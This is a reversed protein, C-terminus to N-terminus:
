FILRRGAAPPPPPPPNNNNDDKKKKPAKPVKRQKNREKAEKEQRKEDRLAIQRRVNDLLDIMSQMTILRPNEILRRYADPYMRQFVLMVENSSPNNNDGRGHPERIQRIDEYLQELIRDYTGLEEDEDTMENMIAIIREQAADVQAQEDPTLVSERHIFQSPASASRKLQGTPSLPPNSYSSSSPSVSEFSKARCSPCDDSTLQTYCDKCIPNKCAKCYQSNQLGEDTFDSMCISCSPNDNESKSIQLKKKQRKYAEIGQNSPRRLQEQMNQYYEPIPRFTSEAPMPEKGDMGGSLGNGQEDEEVADEYKQLLENLKRGLSNHEEQTTALEMLNNIRIIKDFFMRSNSIQPSPTESRPMREQVEEVRPRSSCTGEGRKPRLKHIGYGQMELHAEVDKFLKYKEPDEDMLPKVKNGSFKNRDLIGANEALVKGKIGAYSASVNFTGNKEEKRVKELTKLFKEDAERIKKADGSYLDYRIDHILAGGRDTESVFNKKNLAEALSGHKKILEKLNGYTDSGPGAFTAPVLAGEENMFIAHKEGDKLEHRRPDEKKGRLKNYIKTFKNVTKDVFGKGKQEKPTTKIVQHIIEAELQSLHRYKKMLTGVGKGIKCNGGAM